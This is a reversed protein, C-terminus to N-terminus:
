VGATDTVYACFRCGRTPAPAVPSELCALVEALEGDFWSLDCEHTLVEVDFRLEGGFAPATRDPKAVVLHATSSIPATIDGHHMLAWAYLELQRQYNPGWGAQLDFPKDPGHTKYDVVRLSGDERSLWIDDVLAYVRLGTPGHTTQLGSKGFTRWGDLRPDAYPILDGPLGAMVPHATGRERYGDFEKKMLGDIANQLEFSKQDPRAIRLRRDLYFCRRCSRFLSLSSPSVTPIYPKQSM